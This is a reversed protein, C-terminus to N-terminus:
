RNFSYIFVMSECKSTDVNLEDDFFVCRFKDGSLSNNQSVEWIGKTPNYLRGLTFQDGSTLHTASLSPPRSKKKVEREKQVSSEKLTTPHSSSPKM